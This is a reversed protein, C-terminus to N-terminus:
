SSLSISLFHHYYFGAVCSSAALSSAGAAASSSPPSTWLSYSLVASYSDPRLSQLSLSFLSEAGFTGGCIVWWPFLDCLTSWFSAVHVSFFYSFVFIYSIYIYIYINLYKCLSEFVHHINWTLELSHRNWHQIFLYICSACIISNFHRFHKNYIFNDVTIKNSWQCSVKKFLVYKLYLVYNCIYMYSMYIRIYISTDTDADERRKTHGSANCCSAGHIKLFGMSM